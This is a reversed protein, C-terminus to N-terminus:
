SGLQAIGARRYSIGAPSLSHRQATMSPQGGCCRGPVFFFGPSNEVFSAIKTSFEGPNENEQGAARRQRCDGASDGGGYGAHAITSVGALLPPSLVPCLRGRYEAAIRLSAMPPSPLFTQGPSVFSRSAPRGARRAIFFNALRVTSWDMHTPQGTKSTRCGNFSHNFRAIHAVACLRGLM